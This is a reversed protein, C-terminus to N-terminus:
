MVIFMSVSCLGGCRSSLREEFHLPKFPSHLALGTFYSYIHKRLKFSFQKFSDSVSVFMKLSLNFSVILKLKIWSILLFEDPKFWDAELSCDWLKGFRKWPSAESPLSAEPDILDWNTGTTGSRLVIGELEERINSEWASSRGAKM